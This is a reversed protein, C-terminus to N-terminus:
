LRKAMYPGEREYGFKRYYERAGIGSTVLIRDMGNERSIEEAESLLEEGYGRHQGVTERQEGIPIMSGYVHLERVLATRSDVEPRHARESPFRLRLFGVLVDNVPDEQSLFFERGGTAMYDEVMLTVSEEDVEAGRRSLHGVERCRICRCRFGEEELRRYVLEGLNSKRVGDVILQSPIDRQIRMTRVWKPLMKKIEVILDVAEETSYPRYEGKEWMRYLESGRTVLCPYIKIMDPRFSPDNFIRRFIRLDREFDSFLGPMLHMAVKIGSDRLIRNSEIVDAVSHGRKIRQYIYNYITQVGLEVRTVGLGLMRDVDEERCYDPRTEFTMGVCRVPSSENYKQADDVKVYGNYGPITVKLDKLESGFDVMAELCKSIFWEQYCLSHSPFTGGMVILEVKDVPHGISHLQELRSYVQRYPHFEHMRARLAAPEEGTYSPPAKDSEPCYLCRGHPCEHPQCMVAVVAVGSITRTPKKRLIDEVLKKEDPEAYKLIESNSMFKKLKFERCARHKARELDQGTKIKGSIIDDIILRCADRM